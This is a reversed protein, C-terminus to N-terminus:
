LGYTNTLRSISGPGELEGDPVWAVSSVLNYLTCCKVSAPFVQLSVWCGCVVVTLFFIMLSVKGLLYSKWREKEGDLFFPVVIFM